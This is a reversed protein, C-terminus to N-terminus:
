FSIVVVMGAGGPGGAGSAFGNDSAAGGGGGGGPQGGAAGAMGANATRYGGGGGGTGGFYNTLGNTGVTPLVLTTGNGGTGGAVSASYGSAGTTAANRIGGNGGVSAFTSNAAAGGGGGGGTGITFMYRDSTSTPTSGNGNTGNGGSAASSFNPLFSGMLVFASGSYAPGNVTAASTGGSAQNLGSQAQFPGFTSASGLQGQNGLTFDTTVSAGGAGGAGITVTVTSGLAALPVFAEIYGGPTGGAGGSRITTTPNRTGSGGGCGGAWIKIHAMTKGAPKTWTATGVTSFVQVDAAGGGGGATAWALDWDTGSVKSLVQGTTGGAPVLKTAPEVAATGLGLNTRATSTSALGSLNGSKALYNTATETAMTGLGLNTRATSINTLDALNNIKQMYESMGYITQYNLAANEITLIGASTATKNKWLSTAYDYALLDNDSPSVVQVDHLEELEFGNSIRLQIVGHTPHNRAIVGIYVLNDPATPKVTTWGGAVTPSLYVQDGDTYGSTDLNAVFGAIVITGDSNNPIPASVMGYTGSSTSELNAQALAVTPRNGLAGNIYVIQGATLTFGNNNRVTAIVNETSTALTALPPTGWTTNYDTGDVKLLSQGANGGAAVGPGAPGTEGTDGRPITFDFVAASSTGSNTVSADTGAAGTTTTGTSITAAAGDDGKDGKLGEPIGFNFVAASSTGSNTVTASSGPALTTTTGAAITAATGTNGTDGKDGKQGQIGQPIGFNFVADNATGSNTVTASSGAALTTTTGVAITAAEGQIGEPITFDFVANVATGSNVVLADTGPAGTTTTGVEVTAAVVPLQPDITVTAPVVPNIGLDASALITLTIAM